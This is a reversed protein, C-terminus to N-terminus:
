CTVSDFEEDPDSYSCRSRVTGAADELTARDGDNNWVYWGRDQFLNRVSDSGSGTHIRVTGHAPLTYSGFEYVHHSLDRLTWGALSVAHGTRNRLKVWEANLSANGGRDPGPSNYFIEQVVVPRAVTPRSTAQAAPALVLTLGAVAAASGAATVRIATTRTVAARIAAARRMVTPM